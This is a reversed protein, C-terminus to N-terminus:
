RWFQLLMFLLLWLCGLFHWYIANVRLILALSQGRWGQPPWLSALGLGVLGGAVHVAHAITMVFFFSAYPTASFTMGRERLNQWAFVQGIVFTVGLLFTVAIWPRAYGGAREVARSRELLLSSLGLIVTNAYVIPPMSGPAWETGLGHRVIYASVFALFLMLIPILAIWMGLIAVHQTGSGRGPDSDGGGGGRDGGGGDGRDGGGGDGSPPPEPPPGGAQVNERPADLVPTM